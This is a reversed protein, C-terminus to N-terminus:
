AHCSIFTSGHDVKFTCGAEPQKALGEADMGIYASTIYLDNYDKGGFCCSTIREAPLKVTQLHKGSLPLEDVVLPAIPCANM